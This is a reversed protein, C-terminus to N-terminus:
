RKRSSKLVKEFAYKVDKFQDVENHTFCEKIQDKRVSNEEFTKKDVFYTGIYGQDDWLEFSYNKNDRLNLDTLSYSIMPFLVRKQKGGFGYDVMCPTEKKFYFVDLKKNLKKM